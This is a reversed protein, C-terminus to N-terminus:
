VDICLLTNSVKEWLFVFGLDLRYVLDPFEVKDNSELGVLFTCSRKSTLWGVVLLGATGSWVLLGVQFVVLFTARPVKM